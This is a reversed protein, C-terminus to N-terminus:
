VDTRPLQQAAHRAPRGWAADEYGSARHRPRAWVRVLVERARDADSAVEGHGDALARRIPVSEKKLHINLADMAFSMGVRSLVVLGVVVLMARRQSTNLTFGLNM